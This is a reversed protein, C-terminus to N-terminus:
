RMLDEFYGRTNPVMIVWPRPSSVPGPVDSLNRRMVGSVVGLSAPAPAMTKTVTDYQQYTFYNSIILLLVLHKM